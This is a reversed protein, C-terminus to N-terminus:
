QAGGNPGILHMLENIVANRDIHDWNQRQRCANLYKPRITPPLGRVFVLEQETSYASKSM